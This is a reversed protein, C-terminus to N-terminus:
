DGEQYKTGDFLSIWFYTIGSHIPISIKNESYVKVLFQFILHPTIFKADYLFKLCVNRQFFNFAQRKASIRIYFCSVLNVPKLDRRIFQEFIVWTIHIHLVKLLLNKTSHLNRFFRRIYDTACLWHRFLTGCFVFVTGPFANISDETFYHFLM